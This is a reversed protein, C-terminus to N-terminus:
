SWMSPKARLMRSAMMPTLTFQPSIVLKEDVAYPLRYLQFLGPAAFIALGDPPSQWFDRDDLLTRASELISTQDEQSVNRETLPREIETLTNRYRTPNQQLDAGLKYMPMFVSIKPTQEHQALAKLGDLTLQEM